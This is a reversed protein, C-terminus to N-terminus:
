QADGGAMELVSLVGRRRLLRAFLMRNSAVDDVVLQLSDDPSPPARLTSSPRLLACCM